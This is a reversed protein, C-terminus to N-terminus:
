CSTFKMMMGRIKEINAKSEIDVQKECREIKSVANRVQELLQKLSATVQKTKEREEGVVKIAFDFDHDRHGFPHNNLTCDPCILSSCTKCYYLAQKTHSECYEVDCSEPKAVAQEQLFRNIPVTQHSKFDKWKKHFENCDRCLAGKCDLCWTIAAADEDCKGCKM